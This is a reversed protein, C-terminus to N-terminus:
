QIKTLITVAAVTPVKYFNFEEWSLHRAKAQEEDINLTLQSVKGEGNWKQLLKVYEIRVEEIKGKLESAMKKNILLTTPRETDSEGKLKMEGKHHKDEILGGTYNILSDKVYEVYTYFDATVKQINAADASIEKARPDEGEDAKGQIGTVIQNNKESLITNTNGIGKNVLTFAQLIEASVNLALLATLVLYMLNIMLQRPEKPISM